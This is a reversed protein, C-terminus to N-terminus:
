EEKGFHKLEAEALRKMKLRNLNAGKQENQEM